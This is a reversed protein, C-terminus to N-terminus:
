SDQRQAGPQGDHPASNGAAPAFYRDLKEESVYKLSVGASQAISRFDSLDRKFYDRLTDWDSSHFDPKTQHAALETTANLSPLPPLNSGRDKTGLLDRVFENRVDETSLRDLTLLYVDSAKFKNLLNRLPYAFFGSGLISFFPFSRRSLFFGTEYDIRERFSQVSINEAQEMFYRRLVGESKAPYHLKYIQFLIEFLQEPDGEGHENFDTPTTKLLAVSTGDRRAITQYFSYASFCRDFHNRLCLIVKTNHEPLHGIAKPNFSYGVSADLLVGPPTLGRNASVEGVAYSYPEKIGPVRYEALGNSVLWNALSTTGCKEIGAIFLNLGFM